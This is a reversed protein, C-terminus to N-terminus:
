GANRQKLITEARASARRIVLYTAFDVEKWALAKFEEISGGLVVQEARYFIEGLEESPFQKKHTDNIWDTLREECDPFTKICVDYWADENTMRHFYSMPGQEKIFEMAAVGIAILQERSFVNMITTM